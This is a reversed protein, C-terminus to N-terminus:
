GTTNKSAAAVFVGGFPMSRNVCSSRITIGEALLGEM